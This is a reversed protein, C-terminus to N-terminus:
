KEMGTKWWPVLGELRKCLTNSNSLIGQAGRARAATLQDGGFLIHQFNDMQLTVPESGSMVLSETTRKSPVYQQLHETIEAM